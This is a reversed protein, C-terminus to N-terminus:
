AGTQPFRFNSSRYVLAQRVYEVGVLVNVLCVLAYVHVIRVDTEGGKGSPLAFM